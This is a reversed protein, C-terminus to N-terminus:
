SSDCCQDKGVASLADDPGDKDHIANYGKMKKVQPQETVIDGSQWINSAAPPHQVAELVYLLKLAVLLVHTLQQGDEHLAACGILELQGGHIAYVSQQATHEWVLASIGFAIAFLLIHPVQKAAEARTQHRCLVLQLEHLYLMRGQLTNLMLLHLYQIKYEDKHYALLRSKLGHVPELRV